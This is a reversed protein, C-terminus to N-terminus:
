RGVYILYPCRRGPASGLVNVTPRPRAATPFFYPTRAAAEPQAPHLRILVTQGIFM